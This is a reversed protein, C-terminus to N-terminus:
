LVRSAEEMLNGGGNRTESAHSQNKARILVDIQYEGSNQPLFVALTLGRIPKYRYSVLPPHLTGIFPNPEWKTPMPLL